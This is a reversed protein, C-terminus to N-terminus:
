SPFHEAIRGAYYQEWPESLRREAHQKDLLVLLYVLESRVPKAGLLEPLESLEILWGAYWCAWDPDEGDVIRYVRHHTEAAERLLDAIAKVDM